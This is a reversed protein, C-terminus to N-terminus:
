GIVDVPIQENRESMLKHLYFNLEPTTQVIQVIDDRDLQLVRTPEQAILTANRIKDGLSGYEGLLDGATGINIEKGNRLVSISGSLVIYFERGTAGQEILIQDKELELRVAARAIKQNVIDAFDDFPPIIELESRNSWMDKISGIRNEALLFNYFIDESITCLAVPVSAVVSANRREVRNIVAMDGIIDGAEEESVVRQYKGDHHVVGVKGSLIIYILGNSIEGQKIIVDGANYKVVNINSLLTAAWEESIGPYHLNLIQMTRILYSEDGAEKIVFKKGHNALTFTADFESPLQELHLFIVRASNSELSDRPDGHLIGGGGDAFFLDYRERYLEKIKEYKEPQVLGQESMTKIEPLAKNDGVFVIRRRHGDVNMEFTAGITPISHVTYHPTIKMGYFENAHYPELEVFDFYTEFEARAHDTMLALKQCAMWFIEKTCLFKIRHQFLVLPFINCHDDHIHSLFISKIQRQSIGRASLSYELYPMCDILMYDSNYNLLLGSCPKKASFGSAGGIVDIGFKAPMGPVFEPNLDYPPIQADTFNIDIIEGGVEYVNEGRHLVRFDPAQIENDKFSIFDVFQDIGIENGSDDKVALARSEKYLEEFYPSDGISQYEEKTPGLLTLSLLARNKKLAHEEGIIRLKKGRSFNGLVFLFYYLPFETANQLVGHKHITDPILIYDPFDLSRAMMHKIIEPPCGFIISSSGGRYVKVGPIIDVVPM